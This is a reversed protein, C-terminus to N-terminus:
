KAPLKAVFVVARRLWNTLQEDTAVGPPEVVVWGKMPRGTIDFEKVFPEKFADVYDDPDLRVLLSRKWVGTCVKGHLLFCYCGFLQKETVGEQTALGQRIREALAEHFAM